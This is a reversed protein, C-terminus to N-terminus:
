IVNLIQQNQKRNKAKEMIQRNRAGKSARFYHAINVWLLIQMRLPRANKSSRQMCLTYRMCTVIEM